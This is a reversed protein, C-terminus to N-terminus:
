RNWYAFTDDQTYVDTLYNNDFSILFAFIQRIQMSNNYILGGQSCYNATMIGMTPFGIKLQSTGDM